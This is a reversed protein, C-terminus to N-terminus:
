APLSRVFIDTLANTDGDVLNSADSQFAVQWGDLSISPFMSLGNSESAQSSVSARRTLDLEMDRVFVDIALNLDNAILNSASSGFAVYRGDWSLSPSASGGNASLDGMGVSVHRLDGSILDRLFVDHLGNTDTPVVGRSLTHFAVSRGNRSIFAGSSDLTTQSGDS